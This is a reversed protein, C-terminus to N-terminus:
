PTKNFVNDLELPTNLVRISQPTDHPQLVCTNLIATATYGNLASKRKDIASVSYTTNAASKLKFLTTTGVKSSECTYTMTQNQSGGFMGGDSVYGFAYINTLSAPTSARVASQSFWATGFGNTATKISQGLLVEKTQETVLATLQTVNASPLQGKLKTVLGSVLPAAFSTGSGTSYASIQNAASYVSSTISVGPAMVDLAPGYSSFNARAGTQSLAGVSLTAEYAAPYIMCNCNTNGAAAVVVINKNVAYELAALLYSDPNDTGLSLNIVDAGMDAAYRVANAVSLSNGYSDDDIAQIPLLKTNWDVGAIGVNNNGNAAAIGMVMTGHQTGTGTSNLEGALPKNDYNIFDWGSVDDVYGNSDDDINNCKKNLAIGLATCNLRSPNEYPTTGSENDIIGDVNDDVLNCSASLPLGRATCNLISPNQLNTSGVEGPNEFIRGTFEQHNLAFGTDIVALLTQKAPPGMDWLQNVGTNSEWWQGSFPDNATLATKYERVIVSSGDKTTITSGILAERLATTTNISSAAAIAPSTRASAINNPALKAGNGGNSTNPTPSSQQKLVALTNEPSVKPIDSPPASSNLTTALAIVSIIAIFSAINKM